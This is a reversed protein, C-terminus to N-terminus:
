YSDEHQREVHMAQYLAVITIDSGKANDGPNVMEIFKGKHLLMPVVM